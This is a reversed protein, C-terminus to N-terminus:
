GAGPWEQALNKRFWSFSVSLGPHFIIQAGGELADIGDDEGDAVLGVEGKIGISHDGHDAAGDGDDVTEANKVVFLDLAIKFLAAFYLTEASAVDFADFVGDM